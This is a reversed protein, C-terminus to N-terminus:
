SGKPECAIQTQSNGGNVFGVFWTRYLSSPFPSSWFGLCSPVCAVDERTAIRCARASSQFCIWQRDPPQLGCPERCPNGRCRERRFAGGHRRRSAGEKALLRGKTGSATAAHRSADGLEFVTLHCVTITMSGTVMPAILGTPCIARPIARPKRSGGVTLISSM